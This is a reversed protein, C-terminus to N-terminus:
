EREGHIADALAKTRVPDLVGFESEIGSAVLFARVGPYDRVNEPTVGSALALPRGGLAALFASVKGTPAASGTAAGSTTVVDVLGRLASVAAAPDGSEGPTYKFCAGGFWLGSWGTDLGEYFDLDPAYCTDTWVGSIDAGIRELTTRLPYGLLNVGVWPLQGSRRLERVATCVDASNMSQNIVFVGDAGNDLATGASRLTQQITLTHIVPLLVRPKGFSKLICDEMM